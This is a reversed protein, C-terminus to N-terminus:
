IYHLLTNTLRKFTIYFPIQLVSLGLTLGFRVPCFCCLRCVFSSFLSCMIIRYNCLSTYWLVENLTKKIVELVFRGM